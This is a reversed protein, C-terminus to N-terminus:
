FWVNLIIVASANLNYRVWVSRLLISPSTPFILLFLAFSSVCVVSFKDHKDVLQSGQKVSFQVVRSLVFVSGCWSMMKHHTLPSIRFESMSVNIRWSFLLFVPFESGRVCGLHYKFVTIDFPKYSYQYHIQFSSIGSLGKKM